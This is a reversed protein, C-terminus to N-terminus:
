EISVRISSSEQNAYNKETERPKCDQKIEDATEDRVANAASRTNGLIDSPLEFPRNPMDTNIGLAAMSDFFGYGLEDESPNSACENSGISEVPRPTASETTEDLVFPPQDENSFVAEETICLDDPDLIFACISIIEETSAATLLTFVVPKSGPPTQDLTGLLALEAALSKIDPALISPLGIHIKRKLKVNGPRLKSPEAGTLPTHPTHPKANQSLLALRARTEAVADLDVPAGNRHGDLQMKLVDKAALFADVHETKLTMEGKRIKDLLSELAHTIDTMDSFGFTSAGGKISHATRFIADLNEKDPHALDVDLLLREKEALLEETEDFFVQFFQSMDITM